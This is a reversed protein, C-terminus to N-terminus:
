WMKKVIENHLLDLM